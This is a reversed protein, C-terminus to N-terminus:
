CKKTKKQIAWGQRSSGSDLRIYLHGERSSQSIGLGSTVFTPFTFNINSKKRGKKPLEPWLNM